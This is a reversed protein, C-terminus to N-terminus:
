PQRAEQGAASVGVTATAERAEKKYQGIFENLSHYAPDKVQAASPDGSILEKYRVGYASHLAGIRKEGIAAILSRNAEFFTEFGNTNKDSWRVALKLGDAIEEGLIAQAIARSESDVREIAARRISADLPKGTAVLAFGNTFASVTDEAFCGIQIVTALVVIILIRM